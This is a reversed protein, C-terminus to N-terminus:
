TSLPLAEDAEENPVIRSGCLSLCRTTVPDQRGLRMSLTAWDDATASERDIEECDISVLCVQLAAASLADSFEVMLAGDQEKQGKKNLKATYIKEIDRVPKAELVSPSRLTYTINEFTVEIPERELYTKLDIKAM